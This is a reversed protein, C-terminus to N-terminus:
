MGGICDCGSVKWGVCVITMMVLEGGEVGRGHSWSWGRMRGEVFSM